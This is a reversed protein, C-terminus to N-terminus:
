RSFPIKKVAGCFRLVTEDHAAGSTFNMEAGFATADDHLSHM